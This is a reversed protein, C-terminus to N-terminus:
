VRWMLGSAPRKRCGERFQVDTQLMVFAARTDNTQILMDPQLKQMMTTIKSMLTILFYMSSQTSTRCFLDLSPSWSSSVSILWCFLCVFSFICTMQHLWHWFARSCLWVLVWGGGESVGPNMRGWRRWLSRVGRASQRNVLKTARMKVDPLDSFLVEGESLLKNARTREPKWYFSVVGTLFAGEVRGRRVADSLETRTNFWCVDEQEADCREALIGCTTSWPPSVSPNRGPFLWVSATYVTPHHSLRCLFVIWSWAAPSSGEWDNLRLYKEKKPLLEEHGGSPLSM